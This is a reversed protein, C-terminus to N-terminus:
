ALRRALGFTHIIGSALMLAARITWGALVTIMAGVPDLNHGIMAFALAVFVCASANAILIGTFRGELVLLQQFGHPVLIMGAMLMTYFTLRRAEEYANGLVADFVLHSVPEYALMTAATGAGVILAVYVGYRATRPDGAEHSRKLVPVANTLFAFSGALVFSSLQVAVGIQGIRAIDDVYPQYLLIVASLMFANCLDLLAIPLGKGLITRAEEASPIALRVASKKKLYHWSLGSELAWGAAHVLLLVVIQYGALLLAIGIVLELARGLMIPPVNHRVEMRGVFIARDLLATGRFILAPVVLLSVLRQDADLMTISWLALAFSAIALSWVRIGLALSAQRDGRKRDHGYVYPVFTELGLSAGTLVLGYLTIAFTWLGYGDPGLLRTIAVFYVARVLTEFGTAGFSSFGNAAISRIGAGIAM